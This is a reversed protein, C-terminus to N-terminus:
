LLGLEKAQAVAESRNRVHLKSYIHKIHTKVTNVSVMLEVAIEPGSLHTNLLCLVELERESLPDILAQPHPPSPVIEEVTKSGQTEAEFANLVKTVYSLAVKQGAVRQLLGLMAEGEDVFIRIYGEPEALSLAKEITILATDIHGQAQQTLAYLVLCELTSNLRGAQTASQELKTLLTLADDFKGEAMLVRVLTLYEFEYVYLPKDHPSFESTEAWKIASSLNFSTLSLWLRVRCATLRPLKWQFITSQSIHTEIRQILTFAETPNQQAQLVRVMGAVGDVLFEVLAPWQQCLTIGKSLHNAAAELDNWEYWVEGIGIFAVGYLPVVKNLQEQFVQQYTQLAQRLKGQTMQLRVMNGLGMIASVVRQDDQKHQSLETCVKLALATDGNLRYANGLLSTSFSHFFSDGQPLLSSAQQAYKISDLFDGRNYAFFARLADIEGIYHPTSDQKMADEIKALQAEAVEIQAISFLTWVQYVALRLRSQIIEGPLTQLWGQMTFLKGQSMVDQAIQEILDAAQEFDAAALAHKM